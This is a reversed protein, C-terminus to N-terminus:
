PDCLFLTKEDVLFFGIHWHSKKEECIVIINLKLFNFHTWLHGRKEWFWKGLLASWFFDKRLLCGDLPSPSPDLIINKLVKILFFIYIYKCILIYNKVTSFSRFYGRLNPRPPPPPPALDKLTYLISSIPVFIWSIPVFSFRTKNGKKKGEM